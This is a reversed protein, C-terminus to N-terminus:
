EKIASPESWVWSALGNGNVGSRAKAKAVAGVAKSCAHAQETESCLFSWWFLRWAIPRRIRKPEGSQESGKLFTGTIINEGEHFRRSFYPFTKWSECRSFPTKDLHEYEAVQQSKTNSWRIGYNLISRHLTHFVNLSCRFKYRLQQLVDTSM